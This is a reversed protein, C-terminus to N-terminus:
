IIEGYRMSMELRLVPGVASMWSILYNSGPTDPIQSMLTSTHCPHLQYFPRGLIPHEQQTIFTWREERLRDQYHQPVIAWVEELSLLQGDPKYANFYLVPVAYSANYVVHYVFTVMSTSTSVNDQVVAEDLDEVPEKINQSDSLTRERTTPM